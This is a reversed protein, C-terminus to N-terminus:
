IPSQRKPAACSLTITFVGTLVGLTFPFSRKFGMSATNNMSMICGHADKINGYLRRKPGTRTRIV